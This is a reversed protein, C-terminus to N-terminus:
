AARLSADGSIVRRMGTSARILLEGKDSVGTCIGEINEGGGTVSVDCGQYAHNAQWEERLGSFGESEYRRLTVALQKLLAALFQERSATVPLVQDLGIAM